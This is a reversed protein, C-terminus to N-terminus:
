KATSTKATSAKGTSRSKKKRKKKKKKKEDGENMPISGLVHLELYREVEEPTRLTDNVLFMIVVIVGALLVGLFAGILANRKANPSSPKQPITPPDAIKVAQVDTIEHIHDSAAECIAAALKQAVYPDPDTVKVSMVRTDTSAEEVTLKKLVQEYTLPLGTKSVATEAVARTKCLEIYDKTLYASGVLDSSTFSTNEVNSRNLVYLEATSVYQPTIFVKTALFAVLGLVLGSLIIVVINARIVNVLQLLDIELEDNNRTTEM